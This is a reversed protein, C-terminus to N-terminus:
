LVRQKQDWQVHASGDREVDALEIDHSDKVRDRDRERDRHADDTLMTTTTVGVRIVGIPGETAQDRLATAFSAHDTSDLVRRLSTRTLLTSMVTITYVRSISFQPLLHYATDQLPLFLVLNLMAVLATLASTEMTLQILRFIVTDTKKFSTRSRLLFFSLVAAIALDAVSTSILWLTIPIKFEGLTSFRKFAVFSGSVALGSGFSFLVVLIHTYLTLLIPPSGCSRSRRLSLVIVVIPSQTIRWCRMLFFIQAIFGVLATFGPELWMTWEQLDFFEYVGYHQVSARYLVHFDTGGLVLNFLLLLSVIARNFKSDDDFHMRYYDIMQALIFGLLLQQIWTGTILPGFTQEIVDQPPNSNASM